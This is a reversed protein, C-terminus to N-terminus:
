VGSARPSRIRGWALWALCLGLLLAGGVSVWLGKRWSEPQYVFHVTHTGAPVLVGRLLYNTRLIPTPEGDVLAHWGPYDTDSLVLLAPTRSQTRITIAEPKYSLIQAQDDPAPQGHLAVEEEVVAQRAPDFDPHALQALAEDPSDVAMAEHVLYARPLLDLNEYIKVDGSHVLRFHGRDSPLLPVFMGTRRDILTIAQVTLTEPGPQWVLELNAPTLPRPLALEVLYEQRGNEVDQFAVRAGGAAALPSDLGEDALQAGPQGGAVLPFQAVVEGAERVQLTAVTHNEGALAELAEPSATIAGILGIHTAELPDPVHVTLRELGDGGLRAGIQRDYYVGEFWLDRVKDTIVYQVNLLNLLRTPPIEQLQERLRGDAILRDPPIFLTLFDIYRQLPLVGGDFGDVSPVRWLMPLNPALIEQAKLAVILQAFAEESLQPSTGERLIRRFDAMDGPDFTITSMSLFRGMAGPGVQARVPDTLLHAPATRVDYVAQPATPAAHPLARAALWLDVALLAVVLGTLLRPRIDDATLARGRPLWSPIRGLGQARLADLGAGALLAMGLTYLMMWRAPARFLDFGPVALYLLYYVPNWRGLALFLGLGAFFLGYSRRPDSRRWAGWAALAMGLLGVHAVFETYGLTGFVVSLDALGYSPLLTWLLQLPRLSFSSAEGYSLGGSRLGLGSLELTPWLQAGSLLAGLLVGGGYAALPLGTARLAEGLRRWSRGYTGLPWLCWLGVGFLNIYATQTHGALLMLATLGAMWCLAVWFARSGPANPRQGPLLPALAWLTWPLWTAGNMQNIHGMLGGYFGSGALTLGTVLAAGPSAHWRRALLYGGLGLLWTHIAASWYIQKTVPLWSLPWHLPYLVAAQPNALFPVGLFIYPNWLPIQGQRLSAAAYDRYPYFYLLIDGSALVRNTFLLPHYLALVFIALAGAALLGNRLGPYRGSGHRIHALRTM